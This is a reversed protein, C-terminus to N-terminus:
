NNMELCGKEGDQENQQPASSSQNEDDVEMLNDDQQANSLNEDRFLINTKFIKYQSQVTIPEKIYNNKSNVTLNYIEFIWVLM